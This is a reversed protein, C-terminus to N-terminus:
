ISKKLFCTLPKLGTVLVIKCFQQKDRHITFTQLYDPRPEHGIQVRWGEKIQCSPASYILVARSPFPPSAVTSYTYQLHGALPLHRLLWERREDETHPCHTDTYHWAFEAHHTNLYAPSPRTPTHSRKWSKSILSQTVPILM